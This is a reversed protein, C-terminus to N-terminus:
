RLLNEAKSYADLADQLNNVKMYADGLVQWLDVNVPHRRLADKIEVIAQDVVKGKKIIKAFQKVADDLEGEQIAAKAEAVVAVLPEPTAAPTEAPPPSEPEMEEVPQVEPEVVPVAEAESAAETPEPEEIEAFMELPLQPVPEPKEDGIEQLWDPVEEEAGSAPTDEAATEIPTEEVTDEDGFIATLDELEADFDPEAQDEEITDLWEPVVEEPETSEIPTESIAELPAEVEEAISDATVERDEAAEAAAEESIEELWDMSFDDDDTMIPEVPSEEPAASIAMEEAEVEPDPAQLEKLFDDVIDEPEPEAEPAAIAEPDAIPEPVDAATPKEEEKIIKLWEPTIDGDPDILNGDETFREELQVTESANAPMPPLPKEPEAAPPEEAILEALDDAPQEGAMPPEPQGAGAEAAAEESISDLWDMSFDDEDDLVAEDPADPLSDSLGEVEDLLADLDDLDDVMTIEEDTQDDEAVESLWDPTGDDSLTGGEEPADQKSALNELWEIGEDQDGTPTQHPTQDAPTAEAEVAEVEPLEEIGPSELVPDDSDPEGTPDGTLSGLWDMATDDDVTDTGDLIPPEDAPTPQDPFLDGLESAFEAPPVIEPLEETHPAEALVEPWDGAAQEEAAPQAVPEAQPDEFLAALDEDPATFSALDGLPTTPTKQEVKSAEEPEVSLQPEPAAPSSEGFLNALDDSDAAFPDEEVSADAAPEESIQQLWDLGSDEATKESPEEVLAELDEAPDALGSLEALSDLPDAEEVPQEAEAKQAAAEESISTLWDMSQEDDAAPEATAEPIEVEEVPPAAALLDSLGDGEIPSAAEPQEVDSLWDPAQDDEFSVREDPSTVLEEEAIGQKAALSEMWALGEGAQDAAPDAVDAAPEVPEPTAPPIEDAAEDSGFIDVGEPATLSEMGPVTEDASGIEVKIPKAGKEGSSLSALWDDTDDEGYDGALYGAIKEKEEPAEEAPQATQDAPFSALWDDTDDKGFDGALFAAPDAERSPIEAPTTPEETEGLEGLWDTDTEKPEEQMSELWDPDPEAQIEGLVGLDPESPAADEAPAMEKMWDPVEGEVAPPDPLELGVGSDSSDGSESGWGAEQMFEPLPEESGTEAFPEESPLEELWDASASDSEPPPEVVPDSLWDVAEEAEKAPEESSFESMWQDAAPDESPSGFPSDGASADSELWEGGAPDVPPLAEATPIDTLEESPTSLWDPIETPIEEGEIPKAESTAWAPVEGGLAGGFSPEWNERDVTVAEDPVQDSQTLPPTIFAAYPDLAQWRIYFRQADDDRDSDRLITALLRNGSLNYPLKELIKTCAEAAEVVKDAQHLMEALLTQLDYRQPDESLAAMIESIAQEYLNGHAYMRALAGRTLRLRPPEMGDRKEFLRRLEDQIAHNSPQSEFAMEMHYIATDLNGEDERIISMGVHSIFDDPISSLVRQLLDSADSYRKQELYAKGLLRYTEVHKPYTTLIHRCHAIAEEIQGHDILDNIENNYDRLTIRAM